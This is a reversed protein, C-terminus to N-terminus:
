KKVRLLKFAPKLGLLAETGHDVAVSVALLENPRLAPLIKAIEVMAIKRRLSGSPAKNAAIALQVAQKANWSFEKFHKFAFKETDSHEGLFADMGRQNLGEKFSFEQVATLLDLKRRANM